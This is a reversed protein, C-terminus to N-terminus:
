KDAAAARKRRWLGLGLSGLALALLSGSGPEPNTTQGALIPANPVSNYAWGSIHFNATGAIFSGRGEDVEQGAIWGYHNQYGGSQTRMPFKVGLYGQGGAWPGYKYIRSATGHSTFVRRGFFQLMLGGGGPNLPGIKAGKPVPGVDIGRGPEPVVHISGNVSGGGVCWSCSTGKLFASFFVDGSGVNGLSITTGEFWQPHTTTLLNAPTYVITNAKAPAAGTVLGIGAATAALAYGKLRKELKEPLATATRKSTAGQNVPKPDQDRDTPRIM